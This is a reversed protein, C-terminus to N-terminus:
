QRDISLLSIEDKFLTRQADRHGIGTPLVNGWTESEIRRGARVSVVRIM